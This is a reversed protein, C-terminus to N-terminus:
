NQIHPKGTFIKNGNGGLGAFNIPSKKSLLCPSAFIEKECFHFQSGFGPNGANPM